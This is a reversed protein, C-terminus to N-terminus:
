AHFDPHESDIHATWQRATGQEAVADPHLLMCEIVPDIDPTHRRSSLM